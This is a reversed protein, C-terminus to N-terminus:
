FADGRFSSSMGDPKTAASRRAIEAAAWDAKPDWRSARKVVDKRFQVSACRPLVLSVSPSYIPGPSRGRSGLLNAQSSNLRPDDRRHAATSPPLLMPTPAASSGGRSPFPALLADTSFEPLSVPASPFRCASFTLARPASGFGQRNTKDKKRQKIAAPLTYSTPGPDEIWSTKNKPPGESYLPRFASQIPRGEPVVAKYSPNYTGCEAGPEPLSHLVCKCPTRRRFGFCPPCAHTSSAREEPSYAGPGPPEPLPTFPSPLNAASRPSVLERIDPRESM